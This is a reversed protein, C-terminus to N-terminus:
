GTRWDYIKLGYLLAKQYMDETGRGGPFLAVADAIKAMDNNRIAGAPNVKLGLHAYDEWAAFMMTAPLGKRKAWFYGDTDVGRAGGTIVRTVGEITDLKAYDDPTLRHDRGGAIILIM